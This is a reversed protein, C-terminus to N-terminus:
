KRDDAAREAAFFRQLGDLDDTNILDVGAARLEKWLNANEPTGWFRVLRDSKHARAVFDDLKVREDKPMPGDGRWKYHAHWRESIWPMLHAPDTAALDAVRGDIGAYRLKQAAMEAKARNGSVVVTLAKEEFKGDKVVSLIESYTALVKDLAEYTTKADSKVDVLLWCRPGDKYVRGGNAKVRERLPDLYLSQLTRKRDLNWPM